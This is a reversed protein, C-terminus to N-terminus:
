LNFMKSMMRNLRDFNNNDNDKKFTIDKNLIYNNYGNESKIKYVTITKDNNRVSADTINIFKKFMQNSKYQTIVTNKFDHNLVESERIVEKMLEFIEEGTIYKKYKKSKDYILNFTDQYLNEGKGNLFSITLSHVTNNYQETKDGIQSIISYSQTPKNLIDNIKEYRKSLKILNADTKFDKSIQEKEVESILTKNNLELKIKLKKLNKNFEDKYKKDIKNNSKSKAVNMEKTLTKEEIIIDDSNFTFGYYELKLLLIDLNNWEFNQYKKWTLYNLGIENIDGNDDRIYNFDGTDFVIKTMRKYQTLLDDIVNVEQNGILVKNTIREKEKFYLIHNKKIGEALDRLIKQCKIKSFEYRNDSIKVDSKYIYTTKIANGSPRGVFQTIQESSLPSLIHLADIDYNIRFGVGIVSTVIMVDIDEEWKGNELFYKHENSITKDDLKDSNVVKCKLGKTKLYTEIAESELLVKIKENRKKNNVFIMHKGGTKIIDLVSAMKDKSNVIVKINMKREEKRRIVVEKFGDLNSDYIPTASLYSVRWFRDELDKIARIARQRFYHDGSMTLEHSEDVVLIAKKIYEYGETTKFKTLGDYTTIIIDSDFKPKKGAMVVSCKKDIGFKIKIEGIIKSESQTAITTYPVALVIKYDTNKLFSFTKGLNTSANFLTKQHKKIYDFFFDDPIYKDIVVDPTLKKLNNDKVTTEIIEAKEETKLKNNIQSINKLYYTCFPMNIKNCDRTIKGKHESTEYVNLDSIIVSNEIKASKYACIAKYLLNHTQGSDRSNLKNIWKERLRNQKDIDLEENININKLIENKIKLEPINKIESQIKDETVKIENLTEEYSFEKNTFNTRIYPNRKGEYTTPLYMLSNVRFSAQDLFPYKILMSKKIAKIEEKTYGRNTKLIIRFSSGKKIRHSFTFYSIFDYESFMDEVEERTIQNPNNKDEGDVDLMVFNALGTQGAFLGEKMETTVLYPLNKKAVYFYSKDESIRKIHSFLDKFNTYKYIEDSFILKPSELTINKKWILDENYCDNLITKINERDNFNFVHNNNNIDDIIDKSEKDKPTLNSVVRHTSKQTEVLTYTKNM